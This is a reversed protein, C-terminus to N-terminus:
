WKYVNFVHYGHIAYKMSNYSYLLCCCVCKALFYSGLYIIWQFLLIITCVQSVLLINQNYLSLFLCNLTTLLEALYITNLGYIIIIRCPELLSLAKSNNIEQDFQCYITSFPLHNIFAYRLFTFILNYAKQVAYQNPYDDQPKFNVSFFSLSENDPRGHFWM